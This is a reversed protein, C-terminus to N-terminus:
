EPNVYTRKNTLAQIFESPTLSTEKKFAKNFTVKNNYGVEYAVDIIHLNGHTDEKFMNIAEKVRFTNILEFFNMNFHENIIQSANHRTTNLQTSLSELNITNDKYVKKQVMLNILNEKLEESLANTLGSHKYKNLFLKDKLSVYSNSFIDPQVYAMHAIYVVMVSMLGVQAHNVLSGLDGMISTSSIGYIVYSLVYALHIKYLNKKWSEISSSVPTKSESSKYKYYLRRILFAYIILSSTKLIFVTYSFFKYSVDLDLMMRIKESASSSYLPTLFILLLLSPLFHLLDVKRFKYKLSVGKFYFYLFPGYLLAGTSAMLYTHPIKYQLNSMYLVFELIFLSHVAVFGGIFIKTAAHAKKSFYIVFAFYFGILAIYLYLFTLVNLKIMYRNKLAKYEKTANIADYSSDDLILFDLTNNIYKETFSFADAPQELHANLIALTKFINISDQHKERIANEYLILLELQTMDNDISKEKILSDIQIQTITKIAPDATM